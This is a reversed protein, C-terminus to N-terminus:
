GGSQTVWLQASGQLHFAAVGLLWQKNKKNFQRKSTPIQM